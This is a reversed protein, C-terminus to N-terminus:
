ATRRERHDDYDITGVEGGEGMEEYNILRFFHENHKEM